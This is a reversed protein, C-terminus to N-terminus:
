KTGTLVIVTRGPVTFTKEGKLKWQEQRNKKEESETSLCVQWKLEEKLAPLAFKQECWNFNYAVYIFGEEDAYTGCYM